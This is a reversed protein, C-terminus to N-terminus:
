VGASGPQACQQCCSAHAAGSSRRGVVVVGGGSVVVVGSFARAPPRPRPGAPQASSSLAAQRKHPGSGESYCAKRLAPRLATPHGPLVQISINRPPRLFPSRAVAAAIHAKSGRRAGCRRGWWREPRANWQAHQSRRKVPMGVAHRSPQPQRSHLRDRASNRAAAAAVSRGRPAIRRANPRCTASTEV